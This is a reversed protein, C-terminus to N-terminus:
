FIDEDEEGYGRVTLSLWMVLSSFTVIVKQSLFLDMWPRDNSCVDFKIENINLPINFNFIHWYFHWSVDLLITGIHLLNNWKHLKLLIDILGSFRLCFSPIHLYLLMTAEITTLLHLYIYRAFVSSLSRTM